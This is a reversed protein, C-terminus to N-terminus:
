TPQALMPPLGLDKRIQDRIKQCEQITHIGRSLAHEMDITINNESVYRRLLEEATNMSIKYLQENTTNADLTSPPKSSLVTRLEISSRLLQNRIKPLDATDFYDSKYNLM